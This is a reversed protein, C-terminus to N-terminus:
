FLKKKEFINKKAGAELLYKYILLNIEEARIIISM